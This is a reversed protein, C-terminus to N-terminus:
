SARALSKACVVMNRGGKKADYLAKDAREVLSDIEEGRLYQAVGASFTIKAIKKGTARNVLEKKEVEARLLEAVKMGGEINTEPLLIAFEEGGYRAAMDRGKVGDKLTKAVLKLVQDGIQHGFTDNFVKFKDIDIFIMTFIHGEDEKTHEVLRFIEQDFAKRNPLGTLDDTIAERRAMELDRRMDEMAKASNQLVNEIKKNHNLMTNTGSMLSEIVDKAGDGGKALDKQACELVSSYATAHERASSVTQNVDDITKKIQDGANRVSQEERHNSLFEKFISYCDNDSIEGKNHKVLSDVAKVLALDSRAYYIFWLEFNEPTPLLSEKSIRALALDAFEKAKEVSHFYSM